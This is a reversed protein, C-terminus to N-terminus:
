ATDDGKKLLDALGAFPKLAEDSLPEAGPEAFRAEGLEAGEARPYQPLALALAEFLVAGPDIVDSLAEASDDEPMEIEEGEPEPMDALYRRTVDEEIRTTVPVLTVVCSQTVTAGLSAELLWDSGGQPRVEGAFRLKDLAVLGLAQAIRKCTTADPTLEFRKPKRTPLDAVRFPHSYPITDATM